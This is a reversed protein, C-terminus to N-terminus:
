PKKYATLWQDLTTTNAGLISNADSPDVDENAETFYEFFPILTKLLEMGPMHSLFRAMGFPLVQPELDPYHRACFKTLAQMMTMKEPGLNYLCKNAAAETRFARSVQRAFDAAALWGFECPQEGLVGARGKQIFGPLSEFFWSPRMITYPVGSEMVAREARVKADLYIIGKEEGRSSAGSIQGIRKIGMRAAVAAVNAAGGIEITEYKEPDLQANLNLYVFEQGDLARKLSEIKTVDGEVVAMRDGFITRAKDISTTMVTVNFGDNHLQEAVPRGLMGTGGIVLIKEPM